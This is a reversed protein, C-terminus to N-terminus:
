NIIVALLRSGRGDFSMRTGKSTAVNRVLVGTMKIHSDVGGGGEGGEGAPNLYDNGRGPSRICSTYLRFM